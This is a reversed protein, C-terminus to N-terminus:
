QGNQKLFDGKYNIQKVDGAIQHIEEHEKLINDCLAQIEQIIKLIGQPHKEYSGARRLRM